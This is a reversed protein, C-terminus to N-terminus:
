VCLAVKPLPLPPPPLPILSLPVPPLFGWLFGRGEGKPTKGRRGEWKKHRDRLSRQTDSEGLSAIKVRALPNQEMKKEYLFHLVVRLKQKMILDCNLLLILPNVAAEQDYEPCVKQKTRDVSKQWKNVRRKECELPLLLLLQRLSYQKGNLQPDLPPDRPGGVYQCSGIVWTTM